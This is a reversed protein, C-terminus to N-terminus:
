NDKRPPTQKQTEKIDEQIIQEVINTIKPLLYEQSLRISESAMQPMIENMKKGTPTRYFVLLDKLENETFFKDYLSYSSKEVFEQFNIQKMLRENFKVNFQASKKILENEMREKDADTLGTVKELSSRMMLPYAKQMQAMVSQMTEQTRKNAETVVILEDVLKKKEPSITNQAKVTLVSLGFLILFFSFLYKKKM